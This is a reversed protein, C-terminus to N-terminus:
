YLEFKFRGFLKKRNLSVWSGLLTTIPVALILAASGVIARIIEEMVLQDNLLLWWPLNAPNFAFFLFISLSSGAYALVLTNIMSIIHERGIHMSKWFLHSVHQKPNEKALTFITIAQTTTIDNLAGLTGIIIGGLLIGQPNIQNTTSLQLAYSNPDDLGLLYTLQVAILSLVAAIILSLATGILAITTKISIGHAIYTTVFMIVIAGTVCITLPDQGKLIQPMIYYLIVLISIGLGVLAGIGKKGVVALVLLVFAGLIWWLNTLRYPEYLVYFMKSDPPVPKSDIVVLSNKEIKQIVGFRADTSYDITIIKGKELGEIFQVKLNENYTKSGNQNKIGANEVLLVKARNYTEHYDLEDPPEAHVLHPFLNAIAMFFLICIFLDKLKNKM